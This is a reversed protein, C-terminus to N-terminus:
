AGRTDETRRGATRAYYEEGKVTKTVFSGPVDGIARVAEAAALREMLEAYLTQVELPLKTM